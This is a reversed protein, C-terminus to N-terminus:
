EKRRDTNESPRFSRDKELALIVLKKPIEIYHNRNRDGRFLICLDTEDFWIDEPDDVTYWLSM